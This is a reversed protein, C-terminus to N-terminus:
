ACTSIRKARKSILHKVAAHQKLVQLPVLFPIDYANNGASAVFLLTIVSQSSGLKSRYQIIDTSQKRPAQKHLSDFRSSITCSLRAELGESLEPIQGDRRFFVKEVEPPEFLLTRNVLYDCGAV